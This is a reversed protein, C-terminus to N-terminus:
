QLALEIQLAIFRKPEEPYEKLLTAYVVHRKYEGSVHAIPDVEAILEKARRIVANDVYSIPEYKVQTVQTVPAIQQSERARELLSKTALHERQERELLTKIDQLETALLNRASELTEARNIYPSLDVYEAAPSPIPLPEGAVPGELWVLLGRLLRIFYNRM